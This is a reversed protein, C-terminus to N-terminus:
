LDRRISLLWTMLFFCLIGIILSDILKGNIFGGFTRNCFNAFEILEDGRTKSMTAAILKKSQAKFLEKSNLFYVCVIVGVFLNLVTRLTVIVGQSIMTMYDGIRPLFENQTWNVFSDRARSIILEATGALQPYKEATFTTSIWEILENFKDPADQILGLVSRITEPLVLAFVGCVVGFLVLLSVITAVVRAVRLANKKKKYAQNTYKYMRRVTANYVPCLLYAMVLGFIFPSLITNVFGWAAQVQDFHIIVEYLVILGAGAGFFTFGLKVYRNHFREKVFFM